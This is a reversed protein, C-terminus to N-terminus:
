SAPQSESLEKLVQMAKESDKTEVFIHDHYYGAVVNCSINNQALATSFSATLGIADLSSHITITIWAAVFDYALNLSDAKSKSIILTTGEAEKFECIIGDRDIRNSDTQTVFVYEDDNLIPRMGRLLKQLNKEGNM